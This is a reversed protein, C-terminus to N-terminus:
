ETGRALIVIAEALTEAALLAEGHTNGAAGVEVLLAGPSMDQNFRQARLNIPRTIGPALRELQTHLKLALSLNEQWNPHILGSANTGVVLMLQASEQGNVTAVTRLQNDLDGSADRHLDLVLRITPYRELYFEISQRADNYSGNYSPYDHLERDHIVAIGSDSLVEAVKDGISLMNYGEDLTRFAASEEYIEGAKTYSETTHTHLILVTPAQGTLDWTLPTELLTQVDPKLGCSDTMNVLSADEAGFCPLATQVSETSMPPPSEGVSNSKEELSPSFRVKRGTELYILFSQVEPDRLWDVLPEWLHTSMLRVGITCLILLAGLRKASRESDM